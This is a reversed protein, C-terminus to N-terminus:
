RRIQEQENWEGCKREVKLHSEDVTLAELMLRLLRM